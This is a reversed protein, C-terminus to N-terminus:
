VFANLLGTLSISPFSVTHITLSSKSHELQCPHEEYSMLETERKRTMTLIWSESPCAASRVQAKEERPKQREQNQIFEEEM